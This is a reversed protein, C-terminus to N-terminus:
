LQGGSAASWSTELVAAGVARRVNGCRNLLDLYLLVPHWRSCCQGPANLKLLDYMRRIANKSKRNVRRSALGKYRVISLSRLSVDLTERLLQDEAKNVDLGIYYMPQM